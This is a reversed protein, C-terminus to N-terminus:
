PLWASLHSGVLASAAIFSNFRDLFGGQGPLTNAYDKIGARRKVWSSGLDGALASLGLATGLALATSASAPLLARAALAFLMAALLGGLLGEVTKNPSVRPALRHQGLAQGVVQSFGDFSAVVLFVFAVQAPTLRWLSFLFASGGLAFLPAIRQPRPVPIRLWARWLEAGSLVVILLGLALVANHGLACAGLVAHVIVFYMALKIWRQRALDGSARRNAWAMGMTGLMFGALTLRLVAAIM